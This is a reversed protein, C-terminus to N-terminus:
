VYLRDFALDHSHLGDLDKTLDYMDYDQAFLM